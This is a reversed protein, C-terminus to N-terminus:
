FHFIWTIGWSVNFFWLKNELIFGSYLLISLILIVSFLSLFISLDKSKKLSEWLFKFSFTHNRNNWFSKSFIDSYLARDCLCNVLTLLLYLSLNVPFFIHFVLSFPFRIVNGIQLLGYMNFWSSHLLPFFVVHKYQIATLKATLLAFISYFLKILIKVSLILCYLM